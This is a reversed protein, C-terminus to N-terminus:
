ADERVTAPVAPLVLGLADFAGQLAASPRAVQLTRERQRLSRELALLLQVGAADVEAVAAGDAVAEPEASRELWSLWDERLATAHYITLEAPLVLDHDM